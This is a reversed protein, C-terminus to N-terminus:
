KAVELPLELQTICAEAQAKCTELDYFGWCSDLVEGEPTRTVFGMCGGSVFTNYTDIEGAMHKDAIKIAEDNWEKLNFEELLKAHAVYIVGIQGADWPCNFPYQRNSLSFGIGSHDYMYVTKLYYLRGELREEELWEFFEESSSFEHKDGLNYRRHMFVM